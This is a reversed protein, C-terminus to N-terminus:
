TPFSILWHISQLPKSLDSYLGHGKTVVVRETNPEATFPACHIYVVVKPINEQLDLLPSLM